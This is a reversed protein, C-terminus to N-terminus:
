VVIARGSREVRTKSRRVELITLWAMLGWGFVADAGEEGELEGGCVCGGGALGERAVVEVRELAGLNAM